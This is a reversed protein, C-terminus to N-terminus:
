AAHMRSQLSEYLAVYADIARSESYYDIARRRGAAGLRVRTAADGALATVATALAIADGTPVLVASDPGCVEALTAFGVVPRACAMAELAVYGFGEYRSPMLVIDSRAYVAPMDHAAVRDFFEISAARPGKGLQSALSRQCYLTVNSGLRDLVSRVIDFGKRFSSSGAYLVRCQAGALKPAPEFLGADVWNPIAHAEVGVQRRIGDALHLSVATTAQCRAYSRRIYRDVVFQQYLRQATPKSLIFERSCFTGHDTAVVPLQHGVFAFASMANAHIVTTGVPPATRALRPLFECHPGFWTISSEIGRKALAAQLRESFVDAGTSVRITPLWIKM